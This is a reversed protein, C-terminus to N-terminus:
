IGRLLIGLAQGAARLDRDLTALPLGRRQALELYCADYVTLGCRDSLSLTTTWVHADVDADVTIPMRELDALSADRYATDIRKRRIGAQFGSAVELRWLPPVVAGTQAVIDLLEEAAATTEDEFYWTLTLSADLVLNV